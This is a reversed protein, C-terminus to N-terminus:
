NWNILLLVFRVNWWMGLMGNCQTNLYLPSLRLNMVFGCPYYKVTAFPDEWTFSTNVYKLYIILCWYKTAISFKQMRQPRKLLLFTNQSFIKVFCKTCNSTSMQPVQSNQGGLEKRKERKQDQFYHKRKRNRDNTRRKQNEICKGHRSDRVLRYTSMKKIWENRSVISQRENM